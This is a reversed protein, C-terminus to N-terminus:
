KKMLSIGYLSFSLFTTVILQIYVPTSILDGEVLLVSILAFKLLYYVFKSLIISLFAASFKNKLVKVFSYFLFVNISLEVAILASKIISPHSSILYSFLPLSFAIIYSNNRSSFALALFLMIRMPEFLYVPVNLLHSLAPVFYIFAIAGADLLIYPLNNRFSFALSNTMTM